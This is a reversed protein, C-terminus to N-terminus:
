SADDRIDAGVQSRVTDNECMRESSESSESGPGNVAVQANGRDSKQLTRTM